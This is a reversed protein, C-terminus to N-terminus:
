KTSWGENEGTRSPMLTLKISPKSQLRGVVHSNSPAIESAGGDSVGAKNRFRVRSTSRARKLAGELGRPCWPNTVLEPSNSAFMDLSGCAFYRCNLRKARWAVQTRIIGSM